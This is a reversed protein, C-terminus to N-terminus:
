KLQLGKIKRVNDESIDEGKGNTLIYIRAAEDVEEAVNVAEEFNEGVTVLGHNQLLLARCSANSFQETVARALEKTGPAMFPIMTLPRAFFVFGPTLAPLVDPGPEILTSTAIIFAGHVHCVVNIDPRAHLIGLHVEVDKTPTGGKLVRGEKNVTVVMEPNMDRLSCGSPTILIKDGVRVSANGGFGTVLHREYLLRCFLSFDEKSVPPNQGGPHDKLDSVNDDM